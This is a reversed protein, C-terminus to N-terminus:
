KMASMNSDYVDAMKKKEFSNSFVPEPRLSEKLYSEKLINKLTKEAEEWLSWFM